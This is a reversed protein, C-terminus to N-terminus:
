RVALRRYEMCITKRHFIEYEGSDGDEPMGKRHM